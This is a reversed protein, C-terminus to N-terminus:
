RCLFDQFKELCLSTSINSANGAYTPSAIYPSHCTTLIMHGQLFVPSAMSTRASGSLVLKAKMSSAESGLDDPSSKASIHNRLLCLHLQLLVLMTAHNIAEHRGTNHKSTLMADPGWGLSQMWPRPLSMSM